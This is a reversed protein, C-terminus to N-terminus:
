LYNRRTVRRLPKSSGCSPQRPSAELCADKTKNRPDGAPYIYGQTHSANLGKPNMSQERFGLKIIEDLESMDYKRTM